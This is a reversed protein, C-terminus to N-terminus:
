TPREVYFYAPFGRSEVFQRIAADSADLCTSFVIVYGYELIYYQYSVYRTPAEQVTGM